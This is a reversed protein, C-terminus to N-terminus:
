ARIVPMAPSQMWQHTWNKFLEQQLQMTSETARRFNDLVQDYM